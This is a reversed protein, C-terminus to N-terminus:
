GVSTCKDVEACHVKLNQKHQTVQSSSGNVTPDAEAERKRRRLTCISFDASGMVASLSLFRTGSLYCVTQDKKIKEERHSESTHVGFVSRM